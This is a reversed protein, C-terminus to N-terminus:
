EQAFEHPQFKLTQCNERVTRITEPKFGEPLTAEVELNVKVDAGLLAVLHRVVEQAITDADRSMRKPDLKVMGYFRKMVVPPPPQTGGPARADQGSTPVPPVGANGAATGGSQTAPKTEAAIQAQAADPRVLIGFM